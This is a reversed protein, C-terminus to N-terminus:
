PNLPQLRDGADKGARDDHRPAYAACAQWLAKGDWGSDGQSYLSQNLTDVHHNLSGGFHQAIQSLRSFQRDPEIAKAWILLAERAERANNDSCTQKLRRKAARLSTRAVNEATVESPTFARRTMWWVLLSVVWGIALFLSLWVWFSSAEAATTVPAVPNVPVPGLDQQSVSGSIAAARVKITKAPIRAVEQKQTEVNWWPIAIEPLTYSGAAGPILAIKQERSGTIGELTRLDQLLPKDPYQKVGPIDDLALEPLQAATLGEAVLSITRTVPEGAVIQNLDGQWNESLRVSSAPLWYPADFTEAASSVILSFGQSRVRRIDRSDPFPNFISQSRSALQVEALVPKIKLAGSQQPFLAFKRERVLYPKDALLTQYQRARGLPEVVVEVGEIELDGMQYASINLNSLLRLTVVVQGQVPITAKDASLEFILGEDPPASTQSAPKVEVKFSNSRDKGFRIGPVTFEGAQKPMLQLTWKISRKYDGNIISISNSKSSNFIVFDKRLPSFDPDQDPTEDAEFFLQFSENVRVPNRDISVTIDAIVLTSFVLLGALLCVSYYRSNM